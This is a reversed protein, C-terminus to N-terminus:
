SASSEDLLAIHLMESRASFGARAYIRQTRRNAPTLWVLTVGAAFAESVLRSTIARAIGRGRFEPDVGIAALETVGDIPPSCLGGGIARGAGAPHAAVVIGGARITSRLRRVDQRSAAEPEGYAGNQVSAVELLEADSSAVAIDVGDPPPLERAEGPVCTMLVPCLETTFGRDHLAREVLPSAAPVYELRPIRGRRRFAEVLTEVDGESPEAGMDPIAYNRYRNDSGDDFIAAFPGMRELPRRRNALAILYSAVRLEAVDPSNM